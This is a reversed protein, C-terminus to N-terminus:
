QMLRLLLSPQQNAQALMSVGAQVLVQKSTFETMETSVDVDYLVSRAAENNEVQVAVNAGAFDLRSMLAGLNARQSNITNMANDIATSATQANAVSDVQSAGVGLAAATSVGIAVNIVDTTAVGVLFNLNAGATATGAVINVGDNAFAAGAINATTAWTNNTTIKVGIAAFDLTYTAGPALLNTGGRNFPNGALTDIDISQSGLANGGGSAASFVDVTMVGTTSSYAIRISEGVARVGPNFEFGVFGQATGVLTGINASQHQAAGGLLEVGNFETSGAIRTIETRLNTFETNLFGRETASLQDSQANSALTKMRTLVEGIQAFGGDAIQLMSSAQQVNTSAARLAALDLRLGAAISLSAADDKATVIRTGSSLKSLAANSKMATANLSRQAGMAIVNTNITLPM